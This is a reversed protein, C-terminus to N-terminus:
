RRVGGSGNGVHEINQGAYSAVGNNSDFDEATRDNPPTHKHDSDFAPKGKTQANGGSADLERLAAGRLQTIIPDIRQLSSVSNKV